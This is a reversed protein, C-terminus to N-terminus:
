VKEDAVPDRHIGLVRHVVAGDRPLLVHAEATSGAPVRGADTDGCLIPGRHAGCELKDRAERECTPEDGPQHDECCQLEVSRHPVVLLALDVGGCASPPGSPRM